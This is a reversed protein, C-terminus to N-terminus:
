SCTGVHALILQLVEDVSLKTTDVIVAAPDPKLPATVRNEDRIDREILDQLVTGLNANIGRDQLQLLRRAAREEASATLFIKLFADPFVVTGMDRGDAVLGPPRSFGQLFSTLAARVEAITAIKSAVIGCEESRIISTVDENELIIKQNSGSQDTFEVNLTEIRAKLAHIDDLPINNKLIVLALVRYVAGSDLFHWGLKEALRKGITGKGSGSPGDITIIPITM